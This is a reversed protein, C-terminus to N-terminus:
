LGDFNNEYKLKKNLALLSCEKTKTLIYYFIYTSGMDRFIEFPAAYPRQGGSGAAPRRLGVNQPMRTPRRRAAGFGPVSSVVDRQPVM